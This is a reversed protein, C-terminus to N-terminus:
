LGWTAVRAFRKEADKLQALEVAQGRTLPAGLEIVHVIPNSTWPTDSNISDWLAAFATVPDFFCVRAPKGNVLMTVDRGVIVGEALASERSIAQLSEKRVSRILSFLRACREPCYRPPNSQRQWGWIEWEGDDRTVRQGDRRYAAFDVAQTTSYKKLLSEGHYCVTGPKIDTNLRRTVSKRGEARAESMADSFQLNRM